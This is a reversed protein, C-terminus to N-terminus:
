RPIGAPILSTYSPMLVSDQEDVGPQLEHQNNLFLDPDNPGIDGAAM